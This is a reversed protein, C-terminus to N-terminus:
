INNNAAGDHQNSARQMSLAPWGGPDHRRRKRRDDHDPANTNGSTITPMISADVVRLGEIGRVRLREDVVAAPDTDMGMKATGVPHFITRASTAPPEPWTRTPRSRGPRAPSRKPDAHRLAPAAVIRRTLQLAEAAVQRDAPAALYNPAIAPRPWAPRPEQHPDDGRSEPRLNCVSVTIAPFRHLPEGFKDLSLPQVHFECTRRRGSRRRSTTFAGLQSPAMTLPGRRFLAYELGM